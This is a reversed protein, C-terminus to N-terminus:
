RFTLCYLIPINGVRIIGIEFCYELELFNLCGIQCSDIVAVDRSFQAFKNPMDSFPFKQLAINEQKGAIAQEM